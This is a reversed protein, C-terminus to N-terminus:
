FGKDKCQEAIIEMLRPDRFSYMDPIDLVVQKKITLDFNKNSEIANEENVFVITNAWAILVEDLKILAFTPTSGCARTNYGLSSLHYALSPSRLLGASCVCLIRQMSGQAPNRANYIRNRM